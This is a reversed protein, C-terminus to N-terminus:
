EVGRVEEHTIHSRHSIDLDMTGVKLCIVDCKYVVYYM